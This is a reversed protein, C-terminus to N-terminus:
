DFLDLLSHYWSQEVEINLKLCDRLIQVMRHGQEQTDEHQPGFIETLSDFEAKASWLFKTALVKLASKSITQAVDNPMRMTLDLLRSPDSWIPHQSFRRYEEWWEQDRPALYESANQEITLVDSSSAELLVEIFRVQEGQTECRAAHYIPLNGKLDRVMPNAKSQLLIEVFDLTRSNIHCLSATILPSEGERNNSNPNAGRELLLTTWEMQKGYTRYAGGALIHLPCNGHSDSKDVTATNCLFQVLEFDVHYGYYNGQLLADPALTRWFFKSHPKGDNTELSIDAKNELFMVAFEICYKGDPNIKELMMHFPTIQATNLANVNAGALILQQIASEKPREDLTSSSLALHLPTDGNDDQSSVGQYTKLIEKMAKPFHISMHLSTRGSKGKANPDAKYKLLLKVVEQSGREAALHLPQNNEDDQTDVALGMSLYKEVDKLSRSIVAQHLLTRGSSDRTNLNNGNDNNEPLIPFASAGSNSMSAFSTSGQGFQSMPISGHLPPNQWLGQNESPSPLSNSFINFDLLGGFIGATSQMSPLAADPQTGVAGSTPLQPPLGQQRVQRRLYGWEKLKDRYARISANFGNRRMLERVRHLPQHQVVYHEHIYSQAETWNKLPMM